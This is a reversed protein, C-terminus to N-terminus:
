NSLKEPTKDQGKMQFLVKQKKMTTLKRHHPKPELQQPITAKRAEETQGRTSSTLLGRYTEQHSPSTIPVVSDQQSPCPRAWYFRLGIRWQHTPNHERETPRKGQPPGTKPDVPSYPLKSLSRWSQQEWPRWAWPSGSSVWVEGPSGGVAAPLDPWHGTTDDSREEPDQHMCSKTQTRWSHLRQEGWAQLWIRSAKVTQNGPSEWDRQWIGLSPLRIPSNLVKM